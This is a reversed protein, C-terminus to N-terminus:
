CNDKTRVEESIKFFQEFLFSITIRQIEVRIRIM